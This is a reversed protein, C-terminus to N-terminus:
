VVIKFDCSEWNTPSLSVFALWLGMGDESDSKIATFLASPHLENQYSSAEQGLLLITEPPEEAVYAFINRDSGLMLKVYM